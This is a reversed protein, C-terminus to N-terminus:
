VNPQRYLHLYEDQTGCGGRPCAVPRCLALTLSALVVISMSVVAYVVTTSRRCMSWSCNRERLAAATFVCGAGTKVLLVM